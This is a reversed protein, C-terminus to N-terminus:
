DMLHKKIRQLSRQYSAHDEAFKKYQDPHIDMLHGFECIPEGKETKLYEHFSSFEWKGPGPVLGASSPNLHVYRTM